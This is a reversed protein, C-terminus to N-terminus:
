SRFHEFAKRELGSGDLILVEPQDTIKGIRPFSQELHQRERLDSGRLSYPPVERAGSPDLCQFDFAAADESRVTLLLEFDEGDFPVLGL